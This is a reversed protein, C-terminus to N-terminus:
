IAMQLNFSSEGGYVQDAKVANRERIPLVQRGGAYENFEILTAGSVLVYLRVMAWSAESTYEVVPHTSM